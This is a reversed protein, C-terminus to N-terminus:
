GRWLGNVLRSAADAMKYGAYPELWCWHIPDGSYGGGLLAYITPCYGCFADTLQAVATVKAPSRRKVDIGFQCYMECPNTLIAFDGVRVAHVPTIDVPNDKFEDYLRLAGAVALVYRWRGAEEAGAELTRGAEAVRDASPLRVGMEIDESAHRIVPGDVPGAEGILRLTEGALLAGIERARRDGDRHPPPEMM